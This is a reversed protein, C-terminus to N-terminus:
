IHILSLSSDAHQDMLLDGCDSWSNGTLKTTPLLGRLNEKSLPVGLVFEDESEVVLASFEADKNFTKAWNLIGECRVAPPTPYSRDWLRNWKDACAAFEAIDTIHRTNFTLM